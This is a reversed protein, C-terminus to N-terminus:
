QVRKVGLILINYRSNPQAQWSLIKALCAVPAIPPRGEYDAEWGPNLLSMAILRDGALAERLMEVYRPEFIHLPQIVHPFLVLNPLPFLRVQGSFQESCFASEDPFQSM